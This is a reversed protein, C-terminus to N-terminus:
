ALDFQGLELIELVFNSRSTDSKCLLFPEQAKFEMDSSLSLKANEKNLRNMIFVVIKPDVM